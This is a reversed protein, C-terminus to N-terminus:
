LCQKREGYSTRNDEVIDLSHQRKMELSQQREDRALDPTEQVLTGADVQDRDHVCGMDGRLCRVQLNPLFRDPVDDVLHVSVQEGLALVSRTAHDADFMKDRLDATQDAPTQVSVVQDGSVKEDLKDVYDVCDSLQVQHLGEEADLVVPVARVDDLFQDAPLIPYRGLTEGADGKAFELDAVLRADVVIDDLAREGDVEEVLLDEYEDPEPVYEEDDKGGEVDEAPEEPGEVPGPLDLVNSFM